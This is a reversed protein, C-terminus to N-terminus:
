SRFVIVPDVKLAKRVSIVSAGLCMCCALLFIGAALAPSLVMTMGTSRYGSVVGLTILMGLSYGAVANILAQKIIIRYIDWNRAGIAKLTGFERLHEVTATYITQGVIVMGVVIGMLITIGFGLGMGTEATWYLKTKLAYQEKTYVDVDRIEALRRAVEKLDHGPAVKVLIFVTKDEIWPVIEQATKYSTFVFPATAFGKIGSSKGVVKVKSNLIEVTEGVRLGGLKRDDMEDVIIGRAFKADQITGEKMRWPGGIGTDPNFGIVEVNETGGDKKKLLAWGLILKEAWQVGPVEKVKNIKRETFPLAFDFNRSNQSTVWIDAETHEIIAAANTMFGLYIGVQATILVVSFTVGVLTIILRVRDHFLNKSAIDVM